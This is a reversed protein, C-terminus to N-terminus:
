HHEIINRQKAIVAFPFEKGGLLLMKQKPYTLFIAIFAGFPLLSKLYLTV